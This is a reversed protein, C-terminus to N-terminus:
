ENDDIHNNKEKMKMFWKYGLFIILILVGLFIYMAYNSFNNESNNTINQDDSIDSSDNNKINNIVLIIESDECNSRDFNWTYTNESNSHANTNDITYVNPDITINVKLSEFYSYNCLLNTKDTKLTIYGNGVYAKTKQYAQRIMSADNYKKIPYIYKYTYNYGNDLEKINKTHYEVGEAKISSDYEMPTGGSVDIYAPYWRSYENYIDQKTRENTVTDNIEIYESITNETIELNYNITCGTCLSLLLLIIIGMYIRKM